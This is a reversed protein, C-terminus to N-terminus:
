TQIAPPPETASVQAVEVSEDVEEEEDEEDDEDDDDDDDEGEIQVTGDGEEADGDDGAGLQELDVVEGVDDEDQPPPADTYNDNDWRINFRTVRPKETLINRQVAVNRVGEFRYAAKEEDTGEALLRTYRERLDRDVYENNSYFGVRVFERDDYSATLLIVSVGLVESQPMQTADIADAKFVFRNVGLPIPGVLLSDLEVDQEFGSGVYSNHDATVELPLLLLM